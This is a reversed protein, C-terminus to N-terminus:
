YFDVDKNVEKDKLQNQIQQQKHYLEAVQSSNTAEEPKKDDRIRVFRPFRLSIGKEPDIIGNAAAYVPSVSLDAAKVEWVQVPEFWEDADSGNLRYYSKPKSIVHDKFFKAHEALTQDTFGTGIKCISQYEESEEDYCALLFGGYNGVRKGKGRYGGVVVLDLTDGMGELYDKKLKLWNHSRKAIEYTADKDLTKVMLGECNGKVSEELFEAIQDTDTTDQAQAFVFQGSQENFHEHLLRRRERFSEKVLAKGNLYLLDFAYLCVQVKITSLDADKRKRTSLVQFPMIRNKEQDWAVAETDIVCSQVSDKLAGPIREVIDPYKSTNNEQNRSYINVQGNDLVHIQAREGDYKYECTFASKEFRSLVDSVGKTPHALMPKLPIGPTLKCHEPLADLGHKLLNSIITDYNPLECYTSKVILAKEDMKGKLKEALMDAGANIVKPPFDQGPPTLFAANAIAILVSQEALGIRLKGGLSRILFRAECQKCAILLSKVLSVKQNMSSSGQISAIQKLKKFVAAVTLAAPVFMVKQNSRSSEAVIGLDGTSEMDVKIKSVNRGTSEAVAKVLLHEGIGLEIGEYAPALKNLSLYICLIFENPTLAIVSRFFNCLLEITRLRKTTEEISKFTRALALYPVSQGHKWCAHKIPNYKKLGPDYNEPSVSDEEKEAEKSAKVQFFSHPTKSKPSKKSASEDTKINDLNQIDSDDIKSTELRSKSTASTSTSDESCNRDPSDRIKTVKKDSNRKPRVDEGDDSSSSSKRVKDDILKLKKPKPVSKRATKRKVSGNPTITVDRPPNTLNNQLNNMEMKKLPSNNKADIKSMKEKIKDNNDSKNSDEEKQKNTVDDNPKNIKASGKSSFFSAITRQPM